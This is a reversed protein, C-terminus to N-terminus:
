AAGQTHVFDVFVLFPTLSVSLDHKYKSRFSTWKEQFNLSLKESIPHVERKESYSLGPLGHFKAAEFEMLLEGLKHLKQPRKTLLAQKTSEPSGYIEKLKETVMMFRALSDSINAAEIRHVQVLSERGLWQSLLDLEEGASLDLGTIEPKDGLTTLSTAVLQHKLYM